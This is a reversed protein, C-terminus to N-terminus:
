KSILNRWINAFRFYVGEIHSKLIRKRRVKPRASLASHSLRQLIKSRDGTESPSSTTRHASSCDPSYEVPEIYELNDRPPVTVCKLSIQCVLTGGFIRTKRQCSMRPLSGDPSWNTLRCPGDFPRHGRQPSHSVQSWMKKVQWMAFNIHAPILSRREQEHFGAPAASKMAMAL